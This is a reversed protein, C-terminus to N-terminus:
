AGGQGTTSSGPYPGKGEYSSGIVGSTGIGAGEYGQGTTEYGRGEYSHGGQGVGVRRGLDGARQSIDHRLEDGAKPAFLMGLGAGVIVGVGFLGIAPLVYAGAMPARQLGFVELLDDASIDSYDKNFINKVRSKGLMAM